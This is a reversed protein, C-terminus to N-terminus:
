GAVAGGNVNLFAGTIYDSEPSALFLVAEAVDVPRGARSLPIDAIFRALQESTYSDHIETPIFGPLVANVCIGDGGLARSLSAVMGLLGAKSTAYAPHTLPRANLAAISSVNVIKGYGATRMDALCARVCWFAATANVDVIRRWSEDDVDWPDRPMAIGANNVLISVPGLADRTSAVAAAVDESSTIDVCVVHVDSPLPRADDPAADWVAVRAGEALFRDVTARGIGRAGGTIVAVRDQLRGVRADSATHTSM